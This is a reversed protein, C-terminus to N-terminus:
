KLLDKMQKIAARGREVGRAIKEDKIQQETKCEPPEEDYDWYFGCRNCTFQGLRDRKAECSM